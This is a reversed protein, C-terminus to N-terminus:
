PANPSIIVSLLTSFFRNVPFVIISDHRSTQEDAFVIEFLCFVEHSFNIVTHSPLSTLSPIVKETGAENSQDAAQETKPKEKELSLQAYQSFVISVAVLIGLMLAAYRTTKNRM